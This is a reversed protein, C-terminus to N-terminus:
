KVIKKFRDKVFTKLNKSYNMQKGLQMMENSIKNKDKILKAEFHEESLTIQQVLELSQDILNKEEINLERSFNAQWNLQMKDIKKLDLILEDKQGILWNWITPNNESLQRQSLNLFKKLLNNKKALLLFLDSEKFFNNEM